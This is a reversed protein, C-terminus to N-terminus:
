QQAHEAYAQYYVSDAGMAIEAAKKAREAWNRFAARSGCEKAKIMAVFM